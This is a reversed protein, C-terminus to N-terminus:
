GSQRRKGTFTGDGAGVFEVKGSMSDGDVTGTYVVQLDQGQSQTKFALTIANGTVTGSVDAEGLLGKFTGTVKDDRQTLVFTPTGNIEGFKVAMLWTGSVDTAHAAPPALAVFLAVLCLGALHRGSMLIARLPASRFICLVSKM